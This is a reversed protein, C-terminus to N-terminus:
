ELDVGLMEALVCASSYVDGDTSAIFHQRTKPDVAEIVTRDSGERVVVVYGLELIARLLHRKVALM